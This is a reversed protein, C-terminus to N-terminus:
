YKLAVGTKMFLVECPTLGGFRKRPRTNLLYEVHRVEEDSVKSFDTGKPFYRRILGNVNENSGRECSCFVHAFYCSINLEKEVAKYDLNEFGNDQTLTKRYEIPMDNLREITVRNSEKTGGDNMKGIFVVGTVRENITKLRPKSERSVITDGEFHGIEKRNEM